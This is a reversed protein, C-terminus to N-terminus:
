PHDPDAKVDAKLWMTKLRCHVGLRTIAHNKREKIVHAPM